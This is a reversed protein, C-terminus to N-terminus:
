RPSRRATSLSAEAHVSAVTSPTAREIQQVSVESLGLPKVKGQAVLEAM